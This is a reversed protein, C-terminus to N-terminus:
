LMETRICVLQVTPTATISSSGFNKVRYYVTSGSFGLYYMNLNNGGVSRFVPFLLSYGAPISASVDKTQDTSTYGNAALTVSNLQVSTVVVIPKYTAITEKVNSTLNAANLLTGATTVNGEDRILTYPGTQVGNGDELYYRNPYEVVRDVFAM